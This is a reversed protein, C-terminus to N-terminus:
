DDAADAQLHRSTEYQYIDENAGNIGTGAFPRVSTVPVNSGQPPPVYADPGFTLPANIDRELLQHVGRTNVFNISLQTRGPLQRDVEFAFQGMYPARLSPDIQYVAQNEATLLSTPPLAPTAGPSLAYYSLAQLAAQSGATIIYNTQTFGNYRLANLVNGVSFRTFFIGYGARIM